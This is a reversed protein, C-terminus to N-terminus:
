IKLHWAIASSIIEELGSHYPIWNLIRQAKQGSAFLAPPDGERRQAFQYNVPKGTQREVERIIELISYGQGTALNCIESAGGNFLYESAKICGDALDMVHVYERIATGDPTAYDDGFISINEQKSLATLIVNPILHTEPTHSEGLGALYASGAANFFRLSVYSLGYAKEYWPLLQEIQYKSLGYPSIPNTPTSETIPLELPLGYVTCSSAFVLNKVGADVMANLLSVTGAVNQYFYKAPNAVSEGVYAANAFHVVVDIKHEKLISQIQKQQHTDAPILNGYQCAWTHGLSLNDAIFVNHGQQSALFATHSGIYGAGGVLLLNM